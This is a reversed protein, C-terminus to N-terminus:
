LFKADSAVTGFIVMLKDLIDSVSATPGMYWAMDAAVGKLSKMISEPVVLELYHDKIWQVEHNWQEFSIETKGPTVDGSFTNIKPTGLCLSLTLASILQGMDSRSPAPCPAQLPPGSPVRLGASQEPETSPTPQRLPGWRGGGPFTVEWDDEEPVRSGLPHVWTNLPPSSSPVNVKCQAVEKTLNEMLQHLEHNALDWLEAQLHHLTGGVQPLKNPLHICSERVMLPIQNSTALYATIHAESPTMAKVTIAEGWLEMMKVIGCTTHQLEDTSQFLVISEMASYHLVGLPHTHGKIGCIEIIDEESVSSADMLTGDRRTLSVLCLKDKFIVKASPVDPDRGSATASSTTSMKSKM